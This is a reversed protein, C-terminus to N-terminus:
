MSAGEHRGKESFGTISNKKSYAQQQHVSPKNIVYGVHLCQSVRYISITNKEGQFGDFIICVYIM